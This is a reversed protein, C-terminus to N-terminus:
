PLLNGGVYSLTPFQRFQAFIIRVAKVTTTPFRVIRQYGVASVAAVTQWTHDQPTQIQIQTEELHQGRAIHEKLVIANLAVAERPTVTVMPHRDAEAPQWFATSNDRQFLGKEDISDQQSSFTLQANMLRNENRFARVSDGLQRLMAVDPEALQGNPMPPINLLLTANGGVAQQYLTFLEAASKVETDQNQHYFWGPRISTNVEAPYWVLEGTYDALAKRSGLDDDASSYDQAFETNDTKQSKDIIKEVDQLAAPVVSWESPRTHGAENGVWRVDPGCVAVVAQPQYRRVTLYIREWDYYQKKGNAGEGNAGDLWVEFISGYHTLLETLQHIYFDNYPQGTGYSTETRDWPSLYVGFKLGYEACAQATEAVVDGQGNRWSSAAVTNDTYRSPWLCFGDHHKCTLILGNMGADKVTKAWQRPDLHSPDFLKPSEHGEGWERDTFTNMGFHIFAYFEQKQWAIQRPAPVISAAYDIDL